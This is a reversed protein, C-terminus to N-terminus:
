GYMRKPVEWSNSQRSFRDTFQSKKEELLSEIALEHASQSIRITEQTNRLGKATFVLGFVFAIGGIVQAFTKLFDMRESPTTPDTWRLILACSLLAAIAYAAVILSRHLIRPLKLM